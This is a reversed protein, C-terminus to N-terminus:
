MPKESEGAISPDAYSWRYVGTGGVIFLICLMMGSIPGMLRAWGPIQIPEIQSLDEPDYGIEQITGVGFTTLAYQVLSETGWCFGVGTFQQGKVEYEFVLRGGVSSIDKHILIANTRPWKTVKIWQSWTLWGVVGLVGLGIFIVPLGLAKFIIRESRTPHETPTM